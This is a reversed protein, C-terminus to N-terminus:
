VVRSSLARIHILLEEQHETYYILIKTPIKIVVNVLEVKMSSIKFFIFFKLLGVKHVTLLEPNTNEKNISTCM